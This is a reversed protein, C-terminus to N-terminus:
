DIKPSIKEFLCVSTGTRPIALMRSPQLQSSAASSTIWIVSTNPGALSRVKLMLDPTPLVAQLTVWDPPAPLAEIEEFRARHIEVGPLKLEAAVHRLFAARKTRAEVLHCRSFGCVVLLPIAPSGNGSGIDLLVGAPRVRLGIWVPEVVLRRVLDAGSLGTLNIKRNWRTLDECYASLAAKQTSNLDLQFTHLESDLIEPFTV